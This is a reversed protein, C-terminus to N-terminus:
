FGISCQAGNVRGIVPQVKIEGVKSDMHFLTLPKHEHSRADSDSKEILYGSRRDTSVSGRAAVSTILLPRTLEYQASTTHSKQTVLIQDEKPEQLRAASKRDGARAPQCALGIAILLGYAPILHRRM